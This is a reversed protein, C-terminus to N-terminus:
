LQVQKLTGSEYIHMLVGLKYYVLFSGEGSAAVMIREDVSPQFFIDSVFEEFNKTEM